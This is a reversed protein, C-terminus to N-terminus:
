PRDINKEYWYTKWFGRGGTSILDLDPPLVFNGIPVVEAPIGGSSLPNFRDTKSLSPSNGDTTDYNSVPAGDAIKVAYLRGSGESPACVTGAQAASGEPLFTTFFVTGFTTLAPSLAKEGPQELQLKWGNSLDATCSSENICTNTIDGLGSTNSVADYDSHNYSSIPAIGTVVQRDKLLYFWNETATDRPDSRDGSGILVGDFAGINDKSPVFDPRHFFRRDNSNTVPTIDDRGLNALESLFWTTSRLDTLSEPLDVRWVTGGTDGVYLRDINGDANTDIAALDSPISDLMGSHHYVTASQSGTIGGYIAKWVLAGTVANVIYIANGEDDNATGSDKDIDYGGGFIIVPTPNAGFKVTGVRPSSFSMGLESFDGTKDITWLLSPSDPNTVDLAYYAKGGRRLGFYLYAKDSADPNGDADKGITGDNDTDVIYASPAGDVTYPHASAPSNTMLTAMKDMVSRPM